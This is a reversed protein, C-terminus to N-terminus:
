LAFCHVGHFCEDWGRVEESWYRDLLAKAKLPTCTGLSMALEELQREIWLRSQNTRYGAEAGAVVLPWTMINKLHPSKLGSRLSLVLQDGYVARKGMLSPGIPLIGISQLSMICYIAVAAQFIRGILSWERFLHPQNEQAWIECNVDEIRALIEYAESVMDANISEAPYTSWRARLNSIRVTELLFIPPSLFFPFTMEYMETVDSLKQDLSPALMIQANALTMTNSYVAM